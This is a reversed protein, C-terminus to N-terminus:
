SVTHEHDEYICIYLNINRSEHEHLIIQLTELEVSDDILDILKYQHEHFEADFRKLKNAVYDLTVREGNTLALKEELDAIKKELRIVGNLTVDRHKNSYTIVKAIDEFM